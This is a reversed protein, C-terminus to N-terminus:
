NQESSLLKDKKRYNKKKIKENKKRSRMLKKRSCAELTNLWVILQTTEVQSCSVM